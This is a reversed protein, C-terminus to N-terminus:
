MYVHVNVSNKKLSLVFGRDVVEVSILMVDTFNGGIVKERLNSLHEKRKKNIFWTLGLRYAIKSSISNSHREDFYECPISQRRFEDRIAHMYSFFDPGVIAIKPTTRNM